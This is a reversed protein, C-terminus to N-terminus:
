PIELTVLEKFAPNLGRFDHFTNRLPMHHNRYKLETYNLNVRKVCQLKKKM